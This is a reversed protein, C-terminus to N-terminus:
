RGGKGKEEGGGKEEKREKRAERKGRGAAAFAQPISKPSFPLQIYTFRRALEKGGGGGKKGGKGKRKGGRWGELIGRRCFVLYHTSAPVVEERRKERKREGGRLRRYFFSIFCFLFM